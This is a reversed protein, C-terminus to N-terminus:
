KIIPINIYTSLNVTLMLIAANACTGGAFPTVDIPKMADENVYTKLFCPRKGLSVALELKYVKGGNKNIVQLTKGSELKIGEKTVVKSDYIVEFTDVANKTTFSFFCLSSLLIITFYKM